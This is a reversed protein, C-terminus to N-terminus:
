NEGRRGDGAGRKALYDHVNTKVGSAFFVPEGFFEEIRKVFIARCGKGTEIASVTARSCGVIEAVESQELGYRARLEKLRNRM